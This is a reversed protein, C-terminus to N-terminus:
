HFLPASPDLLTDNSEEHCSPRSPPATEGTSQNRSPSLRYVRGRRSDERSGRGSETETEAEQTQREREM